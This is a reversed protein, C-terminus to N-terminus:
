GLVAYSLNFSAVSAYRGIGGVQTLISLRFLM